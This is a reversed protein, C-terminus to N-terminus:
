KLPLSADIVDLIEQIYALGIDRLVQIYQFEGPDNVKVPLAIQAAIKQVVFLPDSFQNSAQSRYNM